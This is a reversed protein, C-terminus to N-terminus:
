SKEFYNIVDNVTFKSWDNVRMINKREAISNKYAILKAGSSEVSRAGTESDEVGICNKINIKMTKAALLYPDPNPKDLKVIDGTIICDFLHTKYMKTLSKVTTNAYFAHSSTVMANKIGKEKLSIVMEIAGKQPVVKKNTQEVMRKNFFNIMEEDTMKVGLERFMKTSYEMGTGKLANGQKHTWPVNFKKTMELEVNIWYPESDILTGDMDWLVAKLM